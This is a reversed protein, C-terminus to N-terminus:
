SLAEGSSTEEVTESCDRRHRVKKSAMPENRRRSKPRRWQRRRSRQRKRKTKYHSKRERSATPRALAASLDLPSHKRKGRAEPSSTISVSPQPTASGRAHRHEDGLSPVKQEPKAAPRVAAAPPLFDPFSALPRHLNFSDSAPQFDMAALGRCSRGLVDM